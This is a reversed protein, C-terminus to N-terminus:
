RQSTKGVPTAKSREFLLYDQNRYVERWNERDFAAPPNTRQMLVCDIQEQWPGRQGERHWAAVHRWREHVDPTNNLHGLYPRVSTYTAALYGLRTDACLLVGSAGSRELWRFVDRQAPTLYHRERQDDHFERYLFAANDSLLLAAAVSGAAFLTARGARAAVALGWAQLQPLAMLWAPLWHYGRSFHAPQHPPIFWDHKLLLFTGIWAVAFFRDAETWNERRRLRWLAVGTPPAVALVLNSLPMTWALSWKATLARHEPFSNLFVFYYAAFAGLIAAVVALRGVAARTRERAAVVAIWTALILLHQLGSFPHTAALTAVTGIALPWRRKVVAWWAAAVFCHYVAETPLVLNRGWNPFWWGQGTDFAFPDVAWPRGAGLNAALGGLYLAGGGWMTLLFLIRRGAAQPLVAEVLRLTLASCLLSAVVGLSAFLAGPDAGLIKVGFGLLWTLWHFYIVPAHPSPDYPNPHAFGNGREFVERGNAVYYPSDYQLFGTALEGSGLHQLLLLQFPLTGLVVVM